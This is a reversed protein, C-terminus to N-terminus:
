RVVSYLEADTAAPHWLGDEQYASYQNKDLLRYDALYLPSCLDAAVTVSCCWLRSLLAGTVAASRLSNHQPRKRSPGGGPPLAGNQRQRELEELTLDAQPPPMPMVKVTCGAQYHRCSCALCSAPTPRPLPPPPPPSIRVANLDSSAEDSDTNRHAEADSLGSGGSSSDVPASVRLQPLAPM